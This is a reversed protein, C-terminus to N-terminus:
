SLLEKVHDIFARLKPLTQSSKPFYLYYGTSSTSFETLILELKGSSLEDEISDQSTYFIGAGKVAASKMLLPDNLILSGKIQVQFEQGKKEFEWNDYSGSHEYRFVLCKHAHLDQPHPPIPLRAANLDSHPFGRPLELRRSRVM